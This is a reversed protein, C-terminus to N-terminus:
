WGHFHCLTSKKVENDIDAEDAAWNGGVKVRKRARPRFHTGILKACFWAEILAYNIDFIKLIKGVTNDASMALQCGM